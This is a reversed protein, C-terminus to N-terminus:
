HSKLPIQIVADLGGQVLAYYRLGSERGCLLRIREHVNCIGIGHGNKEGIMAGELMRNLMEADGGTGNDMVHIRLKQDEEECFLRIELEREPSWAHFLANEVLPQLIIRAIQIDQYAAPIDCEFHFGHKYRLEQICIYHQLYAIEERLPVTTRTFDTSYKLIDILSTVMTVIEDNGELLASCSVSDLTNYIFHPNIQAQLAKLEAVRLKDAKEATQELLRSIHATMSNYCSYLTAIEDHTRPMPLPSPLYYGDRAQAMTNSLCTIPQTLQKSLLMSIILSIVVLVVAAVAVVSLPVRMYTYVDAKPVLLVSQWDGQFRLSSAFYQEDRWQLQTTSGDRRLQGIITQEWGPNDDGGFPFKEEDTTLFPQGDYFLLSIAGETMRATQLISMLRSKPVAYLVVGIKENYRPDAIRSSRLFQAFFLNEQDLKTHFAYIQGQRSVTQRYWDHGVVDMASYIREPRIKGGLKFGGQIVQALPFQPDILLMAHTGQMLPTNPAGTNIGFTERLQDRQRISSMGSQNMLADAMTDNSCLYFANQRINTLVTGVRDSMSEVTRHQEEEMRTRFVNYLYGYFLSAFFVIMTLMGLVIYSFTRRRITNKM